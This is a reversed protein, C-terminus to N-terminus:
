PSRRPSRAATPASSSATASAAGEGLEVAHSSTQATLLRLDPRTKTSRMTSWAGVPLDGELRRLPPLRDAASLRLRSARTACTTPWRDGTDTQFACGLLEQLTASDRRASRVRPAGGMSGVSLCYVRFFRRSARRSAGTSRATAGPPLLRIRTASAASRIPCSARPRGGNPLRRFLLGRHLRDRRRSSAGTQRAKLYATPTPDRSPRAGGHVAGVLGGALSVAGIEPADRRRSLAPTRRRAHRLANRGPRRRSGGSIWALLRDKRHHGRAGLYVRCDTIGRSAADLM